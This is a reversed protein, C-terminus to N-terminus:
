VAVTRWAVKRTAWARIRINSSSMAFRDACALILFARYLNNAVQLIYGKLRCLFLSQSFLDPPSNLAKIIPIVAWNISVITSTAAFILYLSCSSKRHHRKSFIIISCLNSLTAVTVMIPMIYRTIEQQIVTLVPASM